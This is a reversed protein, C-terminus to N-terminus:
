KCSFQFFHTENFEGNNDGQVISASQMLLMLSQRAVKTKRSKTFKVEFEFGALRQWASLLVTEMNNFQTSEFFDDFIVHYQPSVLGTILILVLAM